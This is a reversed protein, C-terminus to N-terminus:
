RLRLAASLRNSGAIGASMEPAVQGHSGDSSRNTPRPTVPDPYAGSSFRTPFATKAAANLPFGGGRHPRPPHLGHTDILSTM